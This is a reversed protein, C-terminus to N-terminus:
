SPPRASAIDGPQIKSALDIARNALATASDLHQIFFYAALIFAVLLMGLGILPGYQQLFQKKEEYNSNILSEDTKFIFKINQPIVSLKSTEPETVKMPHYDGEAKQYYRILWWFSDKYLFSDDTPYLYRKRSITQLYFNGKKDNKKTAFMRKVRLGSGTSQNLEIRYKFIMFWYFFGIVGLIIVGLFFIRLFNMVQIMIVEFTAM